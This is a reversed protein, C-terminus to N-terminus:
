LGTKWEWSLQMVRSDYSFLSINEDNKVSRLELRLSHDKSLPYILDAKLLQIKQQRVQDILGPSYTNASNWTQLTGSLEGQIEGMLLAHTSLGLLWGQRDGGPKSSTAQDFLYAADFRVRRDHDKWVLETRAAVTNSDYNPLTEFRNHTFDGVISLQIDDQWAQSMRQRLQYNEQYISGNLQIATITALSDMKWQDYRWPVDIGAIISNNNFSTVSDNHITQVQFAGSIGNPTLTSAVSVSAFDYNDRQQQYQPLLQLKQLAIGSGLVYDPSNPGDNVNSNSGRGVQTLIQGQPRWPLCDMDRARQIVEQIEAPPHFREELENLLAISEAKHGLQCELIAYDLWAGAHQPLEAMLSKLDEAADLNRGEQEAQLANLYRQNPDIVEHAWGLQASLIFLALFVRACFTYAIM